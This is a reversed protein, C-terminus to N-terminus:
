SFAHLVELFEEGYQEFKKEGIGNIALMGRKDAPKEEALHKLTRDTFIIYPPVGLEEALETRKARLHEFLGKDYNITESQRVKKEKSEVQL